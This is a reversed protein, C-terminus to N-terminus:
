DITRIVNFLEAQKLGAIEHDIWATKSSM